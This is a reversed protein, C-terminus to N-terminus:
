SVRDAAVLGPEAPRTPTGRRRLVVAVIVLSVVVGILASGGVFVNGIAIGYVAWPAKTVANGVWTGISIGTVDEERLALWLQPFIRGVLFASAAAGIPASGVTALSAAIFIGTAALVLLWTRWTAVGARVLTVMIVVSVLFAPVNTAILAVDGLALGYTLWCATSASLGMWTVVSVGAAGHRHVRWAQLAVSGVTVVVLFLQFPLTEM